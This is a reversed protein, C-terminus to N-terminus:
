CPPWGAGVCQFAGWWYPNAFPRGQRAVEALANLYVQFDWGESAPNRKRYVAVAAEKLQDDSELMEAVEDMTLERLWRQAERLAPAKAMKGEYLNQHFRKM